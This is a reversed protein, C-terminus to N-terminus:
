GVQGLLLHWLQHVLSPINEAPYAGWQWAASIHSPTKLEDPARPSIVSSLLVTPRFHQSLLLM